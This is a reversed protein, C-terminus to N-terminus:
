EVKLRVVTRARNGLSDEVWVTLTYEGVKTASGASLVGDPSVSFGAVGSGSYTYNGMGYQATFTHLYNIVEGATVTLPEGVGDLSLNPPFVIAQFYKTDAWGTNDVQVRHWDYGNTSSWVDRLISNPTGGGGGPRVGGMMYIRGQHSVARHAYRWRFINHRTAWDRGDPSVWVDRNHPGSSDRSPGQGAILYLNGQHPIMQHWGRGYWFWDKQEEQVWNKGDASSWVDRINKLGNNGGSVYIRGNLSAAQHAYRKQWPADPEQVWNKGDESSWVDNLQGAVTEISPDRGGLLYMRGQHSVAQHGYRKIWGADATELVWDRGNGSSWVDSGGYISSGVYISVGVYPSIGDGSNWVDNSNTGGLVYLRGRHAIAQHWNQPYWGTTEVQRWTAGDPSTWVGGGLVLIQSGVEVIAVATAKNSPATAFSAEVTLLYLGGTVEPKSSLIGNDLAFYGDDDGAVVAYTKEGLGGSIAFTLLAKAVGHYTFLPPIPPLVEVTALLVTMDDMWGDVEVTLTYLGPIANPLVSLHGNGPHLTFYESQAALAYSAAGGGFAHVEAAAGAFALLPPADTLALSDLSVYVIIRVLTQTRGGIADEVQVTLTYEGSPVSDDASLVGGPVSFGSVVPALLSYTYDGVGYQAKFTHLNDVATNALMPLWESVGALALEPPFVVAQYGVRLLSTSHADRRWAKGGGSSWMDAVVYHDEESVGGLVYIRGHRSLAQHAYRRKWGASTTEQQWVKGDVSSWVDNGQHGGGLQDGGLVYMRGQHSVVQHWYREPWEADSTELRWEAGDVSSWVDNLYYPYKKNSDYGGLVYLRGNHSLAQHFNRASWNANATELKWTKGDASSWVDNLRRNGSNNIAGSQCNSGDDGGYGGLVYLRGNHSLAQHSYRDSWNADAAELEWTEGDASSWVDNLCPRYLRTLDRGGLIYLRGQHSLAQHDSRRWNARNTEMMLAEDSLLIRADSVFDDNFFGGLIFIQSDGVEATAVATALAGGADMVVVTFTYVKIAANDNVSLTGNSFTFATPDPNATLSYTYPATGGMAQFVHLENNAVGATIYLRPADALILSDEVEMEVDVEVAVTIIASATLNEYAVNLRQFNDVLYVTAVLITMENVTLYLEGDNSVTFANAANTVRWIEQVQINNARLTLLLFPTNTLTMPVRVTDPAQLAPKPADGVAYQRWDELLPRPPTFFRQEMEGQGFIETSALPAVPSTADKTAAALVADAGAIVAFCIALLALAFFLKATIKEAKRVVSLM